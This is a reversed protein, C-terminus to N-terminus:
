KGELKLRIMFGISFSRIETILPPFTLNFASVSEEFMVGLIEQKTKALIYKKVVVSKQSTQQCKGADIYVKYQRQCKGFQSSRLHYVFAALM